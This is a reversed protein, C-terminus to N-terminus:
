GALDYDTLDLHAILAEVDGVLADPPYGSPEHPRASHGHGRMDPMILRRGAARLGDAVGSRVWTELATSIYGHLLVVPRGSGAEHYSLTLGDASTFTHTAPM